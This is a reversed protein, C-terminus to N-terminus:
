AAERARNLAAEISASVVDWSECLLTMPAAICSFPLPALPEFRVMDKETTVVSSAGTARVLDALRAVDAATYRHHDALAVTRVVQWGASRLSDFFQEPHAIGAAAVVPVPTANLQLLRTAGVSQSVGLAWAESRATADDADVVVLLHARAAADAAERLRGFPLVRGTTIEGPRTVLVDLDRALQVHQFGDDLVHVTAGLRRAAVLGALFRDDCVAVIAGEVNRALM